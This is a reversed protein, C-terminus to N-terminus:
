LKFQLQNRRSQDDTIVIQLLTTSYLFGPYFHARSTTIHQYHHLMMGPAAGPNLADSSLFHHAVRERTETEMNQPNM